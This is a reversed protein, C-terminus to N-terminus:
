QSMGMSAGIASRDRGLSSATATGAQSAIERATQPTANGQVTINNNITPAAGDYQARRAISDTMWSPSTSFLARPSSTGVPAWGPTTPVEPTPNLVGPLPTYHPDASLPLGSDPNIGADIRAQRLETDFGLARGIGALVPHAEGTRQAGGFEPGHATEDPKIGLMGRLGATLAGKLSEKILTVLQAIWPRSSEYFNQWFSTWDVSKPDTFSTKFLETIKEIKERVKNAGDEGLFQDFFRGILSDGGRLFTVLDEIVLYLAVWPAAAKAALVILPAMAVALAGFGIIAATIVTNMAEGNEVWRGFSDALRSFLETLAKTAPQLQLMLALGETRFRSAVNGFTKTRKAMQADLEAGANRIADVVIKSSIKGEKALTALDGVSAGVAKAIIKAILPAGSQISRIEQASGRFNRAIAQGLQVMAGASEAQTAGGLITAQTIRKTLDLTEDQSLNLKDTSQKYRQYSAAVDEVSAFTERAIAFVGKQAHATEETTDTVAKLRNQLNTAADSFELLEKVAFLGAFTKAVTALNKFADTLGEVNKQAKELPKQDLDVAFRILLDRLAM